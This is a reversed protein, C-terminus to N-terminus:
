YLEGEVLSYKSPTGDFKLVQYKKVVKSLEVFHKPKFRKIRINWPEPLAEFREDWELSDWDQSEDTLVSEDDDDSRGGAESGQVPPQYVAGKNAAFWQSPKPRKKREESARLAIIRQLWGWAKDKKQTLDQCKKQLQRVHRKDSLTAIKEQIASELDHHAKNLKEALEDPTDAVLRGDRKNDVLHIVYDIQRIKKTIAETFPSATERSDTPGTKEPSKFEETDSM